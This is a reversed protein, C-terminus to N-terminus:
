TVKQPIVLANKVPVTMLVKGTESDFESEILEVKRKYKLSEGNALLLSVTNSGRDKVNTQYELYEPESVNFYTFKRSNDSL